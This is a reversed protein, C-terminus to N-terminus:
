HPEDATAPLHVSSTSTSFALAITAYCVFKVSGLATPIGKEVHHSTPGRDVLELSRVTISFDLFCHHTLAPIRLTSVLYAIRNTSPAPVHRAADNSTFAQATPLGLTKPCLSEVPWAMQVAWGRQQQSELAKRVDWVIAQLQLKTM